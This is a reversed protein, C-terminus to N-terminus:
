VNEIFECTLILLFFYTRLFYFVTSDDFNSNVLQEPLVITILIERLSFARLRNLDVEDVTLLHMRIEIILYFFLM